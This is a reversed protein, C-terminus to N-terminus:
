EFNSHKFYNSLFFFRLNLRQLAFFKLCSILKSIMFSIVVAEGNVVEKGFWGM